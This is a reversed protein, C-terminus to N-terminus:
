SMEVFFVSGEGETSSFGVTGGLLEAYRRVIYLGLGTGQAGNVANNARFFREFLHKQESEPIGIGQDHISIRLTGNKVSSEVRIPQNEPSYKIANSLLNTLIYKILTCDTIFNAEGEHRHEFTQGSKFLSQLNEYVEEICATVNAVAKNVTVKGEELKGVSLFENLITNLGKVTQEIRTAHRQVQEFNQQEAYQGTLSASSLITTLPTRFEHSAISVFRSKMEGLEREKALAVELDTKTQKLEATRAEVKDELADNTQQLADSLATLATKQELISNEYAKRQTNDIVFAIVYFESKVRYPSLSVEVPFESGDKKLGKLDLGNGMSRPQPVEQYDNRYTKHREGFRAPILIEIKEGKLEGAEYGFLVELAPNVLVIEGARNTLLIGNNAHQFLAEFRQELGREEDRFEIFRICFFAAFCFSVIPLLRNLLADQLPMEPPKIFLALITLAISVV